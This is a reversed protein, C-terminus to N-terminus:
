IQCYIIRTGDFEIQFPVELVSKLKKRIAPQREPHAFILMFGGGGAGLLKGGYAGSELAHTYIEDVTNNSIKDTLERKIMWSEHLLEGFEKLSSHSHLITVAEDVMSHLRNLEHHKENTLRIQELAIEHAYRSTGTFYLMLHSQFENLREKPLLLPNILCRGDERIDIINLGGHAVANQDQVGVAENLVNQELHIAEEALREKSRIRGTIGYLAHLMGVTFASSSGIGSRAPLDGNHHIELGDTIDLAKICERVSPHVIDKTLSATEIRSWIIRHKYEFFPPLCRVSIYCYKDISCSLVRGGHTNFWIPYDTGGGFFSIRFPTRSIIM